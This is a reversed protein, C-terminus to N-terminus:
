AIVAAQTTTFVDAAYDVDATEASVDPAREGNPLADLPIRHEVLFARLAAYPIRRFGSGKLRFGRLWGQDFCRIIKQQSCQAIKAAEGTTFIRESETRTDDVITEAMRM